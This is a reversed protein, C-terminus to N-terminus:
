IKENSPFTFELIPAVRVEALSLPRYKLNRKWNLRSKSPAPAIKM